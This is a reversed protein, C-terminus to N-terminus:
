RGEKPWRFRMWEEARACFEVGGVVVHLTAGLGANIQAEYRVLTGKQLWVTYEGYDDSKTETAQVELCTGCHIPEGRLYHRLGGSERRLELAPWEAGREQDRKRQALAKPCEEPRGVSCPEGMWCDSHANM